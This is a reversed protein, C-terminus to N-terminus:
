LRLYLARSRCPFLAFSRHPTERTTFYWREDWCGNKSRALFAPASKRDTRQMLENETL